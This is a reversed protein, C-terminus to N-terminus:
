WLELIREIAQDSYSLIGAGASYRTGSSTGPDVPQSPDADLNRLARELTRKPAAQNTHLWEIHRFARSVGIRQFLYRSNEPVLPSIQQQEIGQHFKEFEDLM